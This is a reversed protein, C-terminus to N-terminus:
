FFLQRDDRSVSIFSKRYDSESAMSLRGFGLFAIGPAQLRVRTSRLYQFIHSAEKSDQGQLQPIQLLMSIM